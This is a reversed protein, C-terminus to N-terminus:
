WKNNWVGYFIRANTRTDQRVCEPSLPFQWNTLLAQYQREILEILMRFNISFLRFHYLLASCLTCFFFFHNDKGITSWCDFCQIFSYSPTPPILLCESGNTMGNKATVIEDSLNLPMSFHTKTIRWFYWLPFYRDIQNVKRQREARSLWWSFRFAVTRIQM